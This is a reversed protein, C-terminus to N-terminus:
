LLGTLNLFIELSFAERISQYLNPPPLFYVRDGILEPVMLNRIQLIIKILDIYPISFNKFFLLITCNALM